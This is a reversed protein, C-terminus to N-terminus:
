HEKDYNELFYDIMMEVVASKSRYGNANMFAEIIEMKFPPLNLTMRADKKEKPASDKKSGNAQIKEILSADYM